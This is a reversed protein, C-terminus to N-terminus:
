SSSYYYYFELKQQHRESIGTSKKELFVLVLNISHILNTVASLVLYWPGVVLRHACVM